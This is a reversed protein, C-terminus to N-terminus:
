GPRRPGSAATAVTGGVTAGAEAPDLALWQGSGSLVQQLDSLLAGAEVTVVLDAAAHEVVRDLGRTSITVDPAAGLSGWTEKSGGGRIGVSRGDAETAALMQALRDVSTPRFLESSM